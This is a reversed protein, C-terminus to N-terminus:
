TRRGRSPPAAKGEGERKRCGETLGEMTADWFADDLEAGLKNVDYPEGAWYRARETTPTKDPTPEPTQGTGEPPNDPM